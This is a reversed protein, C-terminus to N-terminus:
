SSSYYPPLVTNTSSNDLEPIGLNLNTDAGGNIVAMAVNYVITGYYSSIKGETCISNYNELLLNNLLL